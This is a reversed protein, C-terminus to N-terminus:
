PVPVFEISISNPEGSWVATVMTDMLEPDMSNWDRAEWLPEFREVLRDPVLWGTLDQCDIEDTILDHGEGCDLFFTCGRSAASQQVISFFRMFREDM